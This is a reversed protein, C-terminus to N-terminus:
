RRGSARWRGHGHGSLVIDIIDLVDREESTTVRTSSVRDGPQCWSGAMGKTSWMWSSLVVVAPKGPRSADRAVCRLTQTLYHSGYQHHGVDVVLIPKDSDPPSHTSRVPEVFRGDRIVKGITSSIATLISFAPGDLWHVQAADFRETEVGHRQVVAFEGTTVLGGAIVLPVSPVAYSEVTVKRGVILACAPLAVVQAGADHAKRILGVIRDRYATPSANFQARTLGAFDPNKRYESMRVGLNLFVRGVRVTSPAAGPAPGPPPPSDGTAVVSFGLKRLFGNTEAGGGFDESHLMTGTAIEGALAVTYKPPYHKGDHVLDFRRSHRGRPVGDRDIRMLAALVHDRTITPPIAM